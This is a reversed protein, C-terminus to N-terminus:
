KLAKRRAELVGVMRLAEAQEEKLRDIRPNSKKPGGLQEIKQGNEEALETYHVQMRRMVYTCFFKTTTSFSQKYLRELGELSKEVTSTKCRTLFDSYVFLFNVQSRGYLTFMTKEFWPQQEDSGYEAYVYAVSLKVQRHAANENSACLKMGEARSFRTILLLSTSFVNYSSDNIATRAIDLAKLSDNSNALALMAMSRVNSFSDTQALKQLDRSLSDAIPAVRFLSWVRIDYNHDHIAEAVVTKAISTTAEGRPTLGALAQTRDYYGACHRYM